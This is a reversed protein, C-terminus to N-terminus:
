SLWRAGTWFDRNRAVQMYEQSSLVLLLLDDPRAGAQWMNALGTSSAPSGVPYLRSSDPQGSAFHRLFTGFWSSFTDGGIVWLFYEQTTMLISPLATRVNPQAGWFSIQSALAVHGVQDLFVQNIFTGLDGGARVRWYEDSSIFAQQVSVWSVGQDLLGGFYNQDSASATRHLFKQIWTRILLKHYESSKVFASAVANAPAGSEMSGLWSAVDPGTAARQLVDQYLARIWAGETQTIVYDGRSVLLNALLDEDRRGRRLDWGLAALSDIPPTSLGGPQFTAYWQTVVRNTAEQSLLIGLAIQFRSASNTNLSNIWFSAESGGPSRGLATRYLFSVWGTNTNGALTFGEPSATINAQVFAYSQSNLVSSWYTIGGPDANRGFTNQYWGNILLSRVTPSTIFQETPVNLVPAHRFADFAAALEEATPARGLEGQYLNTVYTTTFGDPRAVANAMADQRAQGWPPTLSSAGLDFILLNSPTLLANAQTDFRQGIMGLQWTADGKFHGVAPETLHGLGDGYDWVLRGTAGDYAKIRGEAVELIVDPNGDNTVDAIIPSAYPDSQTSAQVSWITQASSNIARLTGTGDVIAIDLKGDGDLDAIAPLSRTRADVSTDGTVYPWGPLDNGNSDLAYVVNGPFPAHGPIPEPYDYGTGVVVELRGDGFLDVLAPSSWIVQNTQKVWERKGDWSLCNIRGGQWYVVSTSSDGGVIVEPKGDGNLDGIAVGDFVTDDNNFRWMVSGNAHFATIEHNLSTVVIESVGDGDLDGAALGGYIANAAFVEGPLPLAANYYAVTQPWGPLLNGTRANWGFVTGHGDGLFVAPGAPLNVVVPTSNMPGKPAGQSYTHDIFMQGTNPDMKFAYLVDGGLTLVEQRGDGDLDATVPAPSYIGPQPYAGPLTINQLLTPSLNIRDELHELALRAPPLKKQRM